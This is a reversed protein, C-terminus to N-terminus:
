CGNCVNGTDQGSRLELTAACPNAPLRRGSGHLWGYLREGDPAVGVPDPEAACRGARPSHCVKWLLYRGM